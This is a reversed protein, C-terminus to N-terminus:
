KSRRFYRCLIVVAAVLAALGVFPVLTMAFIAAAIGITETLLEAAESM